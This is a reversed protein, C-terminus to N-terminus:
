NYKQSVFSVLNKDNEEHVVCVHTIKNAETAENKEWSILKIEPTPKLLTLKLLQQLNERPITKLKMFDFFSFVIEM